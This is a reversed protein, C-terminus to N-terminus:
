LTPLSYYIELKPWLRAPEQNSTTLMEYDSSAFRLWDPYEEKVLKLLFGLHWTGSADPMLLRTVDVTESVPPVICNYNVDTIYYIRPIFVQNDTTTEPQTEWTVEHEQWPSIIKQLVALYDVPWPTTLTDTGTQSGTMSQIPYVTDTYNYQPYYLTLMAKRVTANHPLQSLDFEILSRTLKHQIDSTVPSVSTAEFFPFKGFNEQPLSRSIMADKGEEPGPQLVLLHLDEVPLAIILPKELSTNLLEERSVKLMKPAFGEKHVVLIYDWHSDRVTVRNVKAELQFSHRWVSDITVTLKAYTFRTPAMIRPDDIYVAVFFDLTRVLHYGFTAYGFAEPPENNVVLVEPAVRTVQDKRIDFPVPLPDDVLYAMPSGEVPAALLVTGESDVVLFKVVEYPGVKLKIERTIWHGGFNYLELHEHDLVLKGNEDVVSIVVYHTRVDSSDGPDSKLHEDLQDLFVGLELIGEQEEELHKECSSILFIPLVVLIRLLSKILKM